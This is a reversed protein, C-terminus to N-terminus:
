GSQNLRQQGAAWLLFSGDHYRIGGVAHEAGNRDGPAAGVSAQQHDPVHDRRHEPAASRGKCHGVVVRRAIWRRAGLIPGDAPLELLGAVDNPQSEKIVDNDGSRVPYSCSISCFSDNHEINVTALSQRM